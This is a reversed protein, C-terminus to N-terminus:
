LGTLPELPLRGTSNGVRDTPVGVLGTVHVLLNALPTDDAYRVHRGGPTKKVGGGVLMIPLNDHAHANSNSIGGGYLITMHDLLSGDGDPTAQLRDLFGTFLSMHYTNIKSMTAIKIPDNEHHSLPHHADPVGIEPYTRGSLERGFMFTTVRTLDTQHALLQLDFMLRAYENFAAPVGPPQDVAPLEKASQEEARQIRREVDRVGELYEDLKVRDRAGLGQSMRAAKKTISDLLSRDGQIRALRSAQSTSGSDGFLREFVARPNNEMPLPTAPGRWSITNTYACSYGACCQGANSRGDLSLEMSALQTHQGLENAVIQDISISAEVEVEAPKPPAGTLFLTSGGAHAGGNPGRLGSVVLLRDRFAELPKMVVPLEFGAGETTPTWYEMAMGNPIYVVGLRRTSSAATRAMASLAPVMADLLPLALATGLGRLMTRRPIALKQIYM